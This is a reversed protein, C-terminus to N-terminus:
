YWETDVTLNDPFTQFVLLSTCTSVAMIGTSFAVAQDQFAVGTTLTSLLKVSKAGENTESGWRQLEGVQNGIYVDGRQDIAPTSWAGPVCAARGGMARRIDGGEKDGACMGAWLTPGDKSWRIDGNPPDVAWIKSPSNYYCNHGMAVVLRSHFQPSNLMGVAASAPPEPTEREWRARGSSANLARVWGPSGPWTGCEPLVGPAPFPNCYKSDYAQVGMAFILNTLPDYVANAQTYTGMAGETMWREVGTELDLCYTNGEQDSFMVTGDSTHYQPVFNWVPSFTAYQWLSSGDSASIGRVVNNGPTLPNSSNRYRYCLHDKCRDTAVVVVGGRGSVAGKVGAIQESAQTAWLEEGTSLELAFVYGSTTSGVLMAPASRRPARISVFRKSLASLGAVSRHGSRQWRITARPEGGAADVKEIQGLDGAKYYEKGDAHYGVGPKVKVRDGVRLERFLGLAAGSAHGAVLGAAGEPKPDEPSLTDELQTEEDRSFAVGERDSDGATAGLLTPAAALQGRPAYSWLLDGSASFKRVADDSGLYINQDGDILPAGVPITNYVGNPHHWGWSINETLDLAGTFDYRDRNASDPWYFKKSHTKHLEESTYRTVGYQNMVGLRLPPPFYEEVSRGYLGGQAHLFRTRSGPAKRRSWSKVARRKNVTGSGM